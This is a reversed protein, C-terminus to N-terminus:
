KEIGQDQYKLVALKAWSMYIIKRRYDRLLNTHMTGTLVHYTVVSLFVKTLNENVACRQMTTKLTATLM